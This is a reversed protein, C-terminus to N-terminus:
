VCGAVGTLTSYDLQQESHYLNKKLPLAVMVKRCIIAIQFIEANSNSLPTKGMFMGFDGVGEEGVRVTGCMGENVPRSRWLPICGGPVDLALLTGPNRGGVPETM